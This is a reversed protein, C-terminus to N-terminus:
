ESQFYEDTSWNHLDTEFELKHILEVYVSQIKEELLETQRSKYQRISFYVTGAGILILSFFLLSTM